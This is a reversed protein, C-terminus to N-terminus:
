EREEEKEMPKQGTHHWYYRVNQPQLCSIQAPFKDVVPQMESKEANCSTFVEKGGKNYRKKTSKDLRDGFTRNSM